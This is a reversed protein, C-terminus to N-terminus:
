PSTPQLYEQPVKLKLVPQPVKILCAVEDYFPLSIRILCLKYPKSYIVGAGDYTWGQLSFYKGSHSDIPGRATYGEVIKQGTKILYIGDNRAIFRGDPSIAEGPFDALVTQYIVKNEQLFQEVRNSDRGPIDSRDFTFNQELNAPFDSMLVVVTDNNQTFIVQEAQLLAAVLLELNPEGIVYANERWSRFAQITYQMGTTRDMIDDELGSEVFWLNDTLFSSFPQDAVNIKEITQLDLLYATTRWFRKERVYLLRGSPSLRTVDHGCAPVIVDVEDPYRTQESAIPCGCQFIYQMLLSNRGWWGWCYGYYLLLSLGLLLVFRSIWSRYRRPKSPPITKAQSTEM